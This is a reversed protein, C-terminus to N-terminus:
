IGLKIKSMLLSLHTNLAMGITFTRALKGTIPSFFGDADINFYITTLKLSAINDILPKM